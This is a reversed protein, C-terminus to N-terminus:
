PCGGNQNLPPLRAEAPAPLGFTHMITPAIIFASYTTNDIAHSCIGPGALALLAQKSTGQGSSGMGYFNDADTHNAQAQSTTLVILTNQLLGQQGLWRLLRGFTADALMLAQQYSDGAADPSSSSDAPALTALEAYLLFGNAQQVGATIDAQVQTMWNVESFSTARQLLDLSRTTADSLIYDDGAVVSTQMGYGRAVDFLSEQGFLHASRGGSFWFTTDINDLAGWPVPHPWTDYTAWSPYAGTLLAYQDAPRWGYPWWVSTDVAAHLLFARFNVTQNALVPDDLLSAAYFGRLDIIIVNKARGPSVARKGPAAVPTLAVQLNSRNAQVVVPFLVREPYYRNDGIDYYRSAVIVYRDQAIHQFLFNGNSDTVSHLANGTRQGARPPIDLWVIASQVPHGTQADIVTGSLTYGGVKFQFGPIQGQQITVDPDDDETDNVDGVVPKFVATARQSQTTHPRPMHLLLWGYAGGALLGILLLSYGLAVFPSVGKSAAPLASANRPQQKRKHTQMTSYPIRETILFGLINSVFPSFAGIM